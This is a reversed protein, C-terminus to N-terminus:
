GEQVPIPPLPPPRLVPNSGTYSVRHSHRAHQAQTDKPTTLLAWLKGQTEQAEQWGGGNGQGGGGGTHCETKRGGGGGGRSSAQAMARACLLCEACFRLLFLPGETPHFVLPVNRDGGRGGPAM